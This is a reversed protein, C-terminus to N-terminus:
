LADPRYLQRKEKSAKHIKEVIIDSSDIYEKSLTTLQKHNWDDLVKQFLKTATLATNCGLGTTPDPTARADASILFLTRGLLGSALRTKDAGIEAISVNKLPLWSATDYKIEPTTGKFFAIIKSVMVLFNAACFSLRTWYHLFNTYRDTTAALERELSSTDLGDEEAIELAEKRALMEDRLSIMEDSKAKSLGAGVYNQGPTQLILSGGISRDKNFVFEGLFILHFFFISYHYIAMATYTISTWVYSFFSGIDIIEPREDVFTAAIVPLKELVVVRDNGLLVNTSSKAGEANVLIDISPILNGSSLLLDIKQTTPNEQITDVKNNYLITVPNEESIEKLVTKMAIELDVLRVSITNYITPPYILKREELFQYIGYKKLLEITEENLQVSNERGHADEDRLEILSTKEGRLVSIIAHMLGSPGAGLIAISKQEHPHLLIKEQNLSNIVSSFTINSM